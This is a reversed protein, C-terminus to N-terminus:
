TRYFYTDILNLVYQKNNSHLAVYAYISSYINNSILIYANVFTKNINCYHFYCM